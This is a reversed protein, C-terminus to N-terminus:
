TKNVKKVVTMNPGIATKIKITTKAEVRAKKAMSEECHHSTIGM